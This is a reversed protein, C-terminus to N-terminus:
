NITKTLYAPKFSVCSSGLNRFVKNQFFLKTKQIPSFIKKLGDIVLYEDTFNLTHIGKCYNLDSPPNIKFCFEEVFDNEDLLIIKNISISRGYGESSNQTPRYLENNYKIFDGAPRTGDVNNKFPNKKHATFPGDFNDSYYIFLQSNSFLGLQTSFLWYKNNFFLITSDLLPLDPIINSKNILSNSEFDFDYCCVNGSKSAEPIVKIVDKERYVFPYSLHSKIDLLQITSLFELNKNFTSLCIRGYNDNNDFDEYILNLNGKPCKFIFPDAFFRFDSNITM